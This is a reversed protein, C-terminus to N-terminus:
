PWNTNENRRAGSGVALWLLLLPLCGATSRILLLLLLGLLLCGDLRVSLSLSRTSGVLQSGDLDYAVVAPHVLDPFNWGAACWRSGAGREGAPTRMAYSAYRAVM